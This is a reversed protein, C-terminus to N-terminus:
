EDLDPAVPWQGQILGCGLCYRFELYDGGGIGWGHPVYGDHEYAVGLTISCLDSVKGSVAAVRLSGCGNCKM